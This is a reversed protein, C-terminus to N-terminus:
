LNTIEMTRDKSKGEKMKVSSVRGLLDTTNRLWTMSGGWPSQGETDKRLPCEGKRDERPESREEKVNRSLHLTKLSAKESWKDSETGKSEKIKRLLVLIIQCQMINEQKNHTEKGILEMIESGKDKTWQKIFIWGGM